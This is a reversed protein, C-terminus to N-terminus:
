LPELVAENGTSTCYLLSSEISMMANSITDGSALTQKM